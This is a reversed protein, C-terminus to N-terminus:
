VEIGVSRYENYKKIATTSLSNQPNKTMLHTPYLPVILDEIKVLQIGTGQYKACSGSVQQTTGEITQYKYM